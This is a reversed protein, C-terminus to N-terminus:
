CQRPSDCEEQGRKQLSGQAKATAEAYNNESPEASWSRKSKPYSPRVTNIVMQQLCFRRVQRTCTGFRQTGGYVSLVDTSPTLQRGVSLRRGTSPQSSGKWVSDTDPMKEQHGLKETNGNSAACTHSTSTM